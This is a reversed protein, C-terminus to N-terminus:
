DVTEQELDDLTQTLQSVVHEHLVTEPSCEQKLLMEHLTILKNLNVGNLCIPTDLMESVISAASLMHALLARAYAHGTLMHKVSNPAYVTEWQGKLGSDSMINGIAGMDSM